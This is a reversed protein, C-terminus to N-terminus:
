AEMYISFQIGLASSHVIIDYITTAWTTNVHFSPLPKWPDFRVVSSKCKGKNPHKGLIQHSIMRVSAVTFNQLLHTKHSQRRTHTHPHSLESLACHYHPLRFDGGQSGYTWARCQLYNIILRKRRSGPNLSPCLTLHHLVHAACLGTHGTKTTEWQVPYEKKSRKCAKRRREYALGQVSGLLFCAPASHLLVFVQERIRQRREM